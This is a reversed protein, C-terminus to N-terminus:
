DILIKSADVQITASYESVIESLREIEVHMVKDFWEKAMRNGTNMKNLSESLTKKRNGHLDYWTSGQSGGQGRGAGKHIYIGERAFSFGIRNVESTGYSRDYSFKPKISESLILNRNVMSQVSARLQETAEKAWKKVDSNFKGVREKDEKRLKTSTESLSELSIEFPLNGFAQQGNPRLSDTLRSSLNDTLGM